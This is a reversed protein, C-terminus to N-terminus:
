IAVKTEHPQFLINKWWKNADAYVMIMFYYSYLLPINYKIMDTSIPQVTIVYSQVLKGLYAHSFFSFMIIWSWPMRKHAM